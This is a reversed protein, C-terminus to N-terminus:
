SLQFANQILRIQHICPKERQMEGLVEIVDFRVDESFKHKYALYHRATQIIKRRKYYNVAESPLGYQTNRRTKVEIFVIYQGDQAIIDIEGSKCRYNRELIKYHHQLLYKVAAEEGIEGLRKQYYAM